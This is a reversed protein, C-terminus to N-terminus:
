GGGNYSVANFLKSTSICQGDQYITLPGSQFIKNVISHVTKKYLCEHDASSVRSNIKLVNKDM